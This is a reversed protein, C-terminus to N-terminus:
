ATNSRAPLDLVPTQTPPDTIPFGLTVQQGSSKKGAFWNNTVRLVTTSTQPHKSWTGWVASRDRILSAALGKGGKGKRGEEELRVGGVGGM